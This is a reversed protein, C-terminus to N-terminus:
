ERSGYRTGLDCAPLLQGRQKRRRQYRRLYGLRRVGTQLLRRGRTREAPAASVQYTLRVCLSRKRATAVTSRSWSGEVLPGAAGGAPAGSPGSRVAKYLV